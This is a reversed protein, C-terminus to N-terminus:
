PKSKSINKCTLILICMCPNTKLVAMCKYSASNPAPKLHNSHGSILRLVKKKKKKRGSVIREAKTETKEAATKYNLYSVTSNLGNIM